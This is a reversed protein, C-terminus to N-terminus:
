RVRLTPVDGLIRATRMAEVWTAYRLGDIWDKFEDDEWAWRSLSLIGRTCREHIHFGDPRLMCTHLWRVGRDVSGRGGGRGRKAQRIPPALNGPARNLRRALAVQLDANSKRAVSRTVRRVDHVKDGVAGKLDTWTQGWRSLMALIGAADEEPTTLGEGIYEDLVWIEPYLGGRRIGALVACQKHDREGHDIGVWLELDLDQPVDSVIHVGGLRPDFAPFAQGDTPTEWAGDLRVAADQGMLGRQEEIYEADVPRGGVTIPETHGVPIMAEPVLDTHHESIIGAECALRLFDLPERANVPTFGMILYGNRRLIRRSAEMFIVRTTPEDIFVDDVTEGAFSIAGAEGSKFLLVTGNKWRVAPYRGRFGLVPDFQTKVDLLSRNLCEWLKKQFSVSQPTSPSICLMRRPYRMDPDPHCQEGRRRIEECLISTKGFYQNGARVLKVKSTDDLFGHQIPLWALWRTPADEAMTRLHSLASLATM